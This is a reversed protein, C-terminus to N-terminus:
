VVGGSAKPLQSQENSLEFPMALPAAMSYQFPKGDRRYRKNDPISVRPEHSSFPLFLFAVPRM